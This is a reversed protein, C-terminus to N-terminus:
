KSYLEVILQEAVDVVIQDRTPLRLRSNDSSRWPDMGTTQGSVRKGRIEPGWGAREARVSWLILYVGHAQVRKAGENCENQGSRDQETGVEGPPKVVDRM